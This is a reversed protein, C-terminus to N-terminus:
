ERHINCIINFYRKLYEGLLRVKAESHDLLNIKVNKKAM